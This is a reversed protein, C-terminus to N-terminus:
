LHSRSCAPIQKWAKLIRDITSSTVEPLGAALDILGEGGEISAEIAHKGARRAPIVEPTAGGPPCIGTM